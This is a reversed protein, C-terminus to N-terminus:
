IAIVFLQSVGPTDVTLVVSGQFYKSVKASALPTVPDATNGVILM